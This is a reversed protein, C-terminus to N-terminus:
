FFCGAAPREQISMTESALPEHAAGDEKPNKKSRTATSVRKDWNQVVERQEEASLM